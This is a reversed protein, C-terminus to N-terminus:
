LGNLRKNINHENLTKSFITEGTKINNLFYMYDTDAPAIAADISSLSPSNIPGQPLGPYKYTNYPSDIEIDALTHKIEPTGKIYDITADSQLAIGIDLRNKFIGAVVRRDAGSSVEGEIISAFIILDHLNNGDREILERRKEDVKINFNDLMKEIIVEATADEAFFYTDPFLYGELSSGKQLFSYKEYLDETPNNSLQFFKEAPLGNEELRQTMKKISWGEPFTIKIDKKVHKVTDGSTMKYAIDAINSKPMILYDGADISGRLKNQWAYYYFYIRNAIFKRAALERGITIIDDGAMVTFQEPTSNHSVTNYTRFHVFGVGVAFIIICSIIIKKM